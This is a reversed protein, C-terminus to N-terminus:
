ISVPELEAGEGVAEVNFSSPVLLQGVPGSYSRVLRHPVHLDNLRHSDLRRVLEEDYMLKVHGDRFERKM